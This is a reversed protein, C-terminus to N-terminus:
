ECVGDCYIPFKKNQEVCYAVALNLLKGELESTKIKM